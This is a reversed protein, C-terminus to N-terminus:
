QASLDTQECHRAPEAHLASAAKLAQALHVEDTIMAAASAWTTDNMVPLHVGHASHGNLLTGFLGRVPSGLAGPLLIAVRGSRVTAPVGRTRAYTTLTACLGCVVAQAPAPWTGEGQHFNNCTLWHYGPKEPHKRCDDLVGSLACLHCPVRGRASQSASLARASTDPTAVMVAAPGIPRKGGICDRATHWASLARVSIDSTAVMVASNQGQETM